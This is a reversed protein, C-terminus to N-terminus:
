AWGGDELSVVVLDVNGRNKVIEEGNPLDNEVARRDGEEESSVIGALVHRKALRARAVEVAVEVFWVEDMLASADRWPEKDLAVYNGEFVVIRHSPLIPIDNEKPDKIAHDFSPAFVTGPPYQEPKLLASATDPLTFSPVPVPLPESDRLRHVLAHFSAGDFTFEAGRRAHATKPDPMASLQARTLHYGDM